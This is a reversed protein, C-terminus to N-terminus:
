TYIDKIKEMITMNLSYGYYGVQILQTEQHTSECVWDFKHTKLGNKGLYKEIGKEGRRQPLGMKHVNYTQDHELPM